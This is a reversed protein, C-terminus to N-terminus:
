TATLYVAFTSSSSTTSDDAPSTTQWFSLKSFAIGGPIMIRTTTNAPVKIRIDPATGSNGGVTVTTASLCIKLCGADNADTNAVVIGYLYGTNQTVDVVPTADLTSDYIISYTLNALDATKLNSSM